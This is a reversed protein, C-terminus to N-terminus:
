IVNQQKIYVTRTPFAMDIGATEFREKVTLNMEQLGALYAKHDTDNWWHIIEINLSSDAFLNFTILADFTKPHKKFVDELIAIATKLQPLSTEYNLGLNMVTKINPRRSVNTIISNGMTKNPITILHGDLNRVRTSRLGISEVTGDVSELKIRDGLRFPKDMFIAVAGFLNALTDQAALGIALGGISLSAIVGTIDIGLNSSTLLISVIVVFVKLSKRIVPFLLQDFSKDDEKAAKAIWHLLLLDILKVVMYTLSIAVVIVLAKTLYDGVQKPWNFVSLGVNLFIVFAVIKVPGHLLELVLDDFTAETTKAWRKLWVQCVTDILRAILFALIIYLTSAIYQWLPIGFFQTERLYQNNDLGFSLVTKDGLVEKALATVVPTQPRNPPANTAPATQASVWVSWAIGFVFLAIM